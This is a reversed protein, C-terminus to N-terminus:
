PHSTVMVENGVTFEHLISYPCAYLKYNDKDKSLQRTINDHAVPLHLATSVRPMVKLSGLIPCTPPRTPRAVFESLPVSSDPCMELCGSFSCDFVVQHIAISFELPQRPTYSITTVIPEVATTNIM